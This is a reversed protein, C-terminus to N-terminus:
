SRTATGASGCRRPSRSDTPPSPRSGCRSRAASSRTPARTSAPRRARPVADVSGVWCGRTRGTPQLCGGHARGVRGNAVADLLATAFDGRTISRGPAKGDVVAVYSGTAPDDTLSRPRSWPGTSRARACSRPMAGISPPSTRTRDPSRPTPSSGRREHHDRYAPSRDAGDCRRDNTDRGLDGDDDRRRHTRAGLRGCRRGVLAAEVAKADSPDGQQVNVADPYWQKSADRVFAVVDDGRQVAQAVVLRGTRGSAGFVVIKM